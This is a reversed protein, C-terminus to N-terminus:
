FYYGLNVNFRYQWDADEEAVGFDPGGLWPHNKGMAFDFYNYMPGAAVLFGIINQQADNFDENSKDIYSYDDYLTISAPGFTVPLTYAIGATYVMGETAVQYPWDYAGMTITELENGDADVVDNYGYYIAHGKINFDAVNADAHIAAALHSGYEDQASNYIQGFQGSLGIETSGLDGYAIDYAARANVQNREQNTNSTPVVDYSYRSAATAGTGQPEAMLFYALSLDFAGIQSNLKLGMDYDDELGLYYAGSFWWSHSAYTLDGFPVQTVGVELQTNEGFRYGFWGHHIFHYNGNPYFRYEFDLLIGAKQGGVNLRWTDWTFQVDDPSVSIDGQADEFMKVFFNYRLAGGITFGEEEEQAAAPALLAASLLMASLLSVSKRSIIKM